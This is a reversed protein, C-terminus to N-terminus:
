PRKTHLYLQTPKLSWTFCGLILSTEGTHLIMLCFIISALVLSYCPFSNMLIKKSIKENNYLCKSSKISKEIYITNNLSKKSFKLSIKFNTSLTNILEANSLQKFSRLNSCFYIAELVTTKGANNHGHLISINKTFVINLLTLSRFDQISLSTIHM